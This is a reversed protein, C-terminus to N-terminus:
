PRFLRPAFDQLHRRWVNWDHLGPTDLWVHPIKQADLKEHMSKSAPYLADGQGCGIWLLRFQKRFEAADAFRGNYATAIDFNRAGAGSFSGIWRFIGPHALGISLAQGGGMSLGALARHDPTALTRYTRDVEPVLDEIMVAGFDENGRPGSSGPRTGYGQDMVVLMPVARNAALLNDLIWNARGQNTWSTENEGSGHQLYLVPFRTDRRTRYAAPTYVMARRMQGTVRSRYWHIHVDGHPVDAAAFFAGDPDPIEIGSSQRAWGFYTESAPDNVPVGDVLLWYYHFGPAAPGVTVSWVGAEDKTMAFPGVGLGNRGGGPMVAVSQATPAKIQFTVRRDEFVQPFRAARVNSPAPMQAAVGLAALALLLRFM